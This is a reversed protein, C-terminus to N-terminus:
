IHVLVKALVVLSAAAGSSNGLWPQERSPEVGWRRGGGSWWGVSGHSDVFVSVSKTDAGEMNWAVCTYVGSVCLPFTGAKTKLRCTKLIYILFIMFVILVLFKQKDKIETVTSSFTQPEECLDM